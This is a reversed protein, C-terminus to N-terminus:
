AKEANDIDLRGVAEEAEEVKSAAGNTKKLRKKRRTLGTVHPAEVVWQAIAEARETMIPHERGDEPSWRRMPQNDQDGTVASPGADDAGSPMELTDAEARKERADISARFTAEDFVREDNLAEIIAQQRIRDKRRDDADGVPVSPSPSGNLLSAAASAAKGNAAPKFAPYNDYLSLPAPACLNEWPASLQLWNDARRIVEIWDTRAPSRSAQFVPYGDTLRVLRAVMYAHRQLEKASTQVVSHCLLLSHLADTLLPHYTISEGTSSGLGELTVGQKAVDQSPYPPLDSPPVPAFLETLNYVTHPEPPTGPDSLRHNRMNHIALSVRENFDKAVKPPLNPTYEFQSLFSMYDKLARKACNKALRRSDAQIKLLKDDLPGAPRSGGEGRFYADAEAPDTFSVPDFSDMVHHCAMTLNASARQFYLQGDLSSPQDQESLIIDQHRRRNRSPDQVPLHENFSSKHSPNRSQTISLAHTLDNIAGNFDAKFCRVTAQTRLIEPEGPHEAIIELLPQLTTSEVLHRSPIKEHFFHVYKADPDQPNRQLVLAGVDELPSAGQMTAVSCAIEDLRYARSLKQSAQERMRFKRERSLKAGHSPTGMTLSYNLNSPIGGNVNTLTPSAIDSAARVALNSAEDVLRRVKVLDFFVAADIPRPRPTNYNVNAIAELIEIPMQLWPGHFCSIYRWHRRLQIQNASIKNRCIILSSSAGSALSAQPLQSAKAKAKASTSPMTSNAHNPFTPNIASPPTISGHARESDEAVPSKGKKKPM